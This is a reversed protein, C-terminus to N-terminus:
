TVGKRVAVFTGMVGKYVDIQFGTKGWFIANIVNWGASTGNLLPQSHM